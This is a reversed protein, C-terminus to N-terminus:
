TTPSVRRPTRAEPKPEPKPEPPTFLRPHAKVLHHREDYEEAPDLMVPGTPTGVHVIETPRVSM